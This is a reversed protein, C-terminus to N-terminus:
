DHNLDREKFAAVGREVAAALEHALKRCLEQIKKRQRESSFLFELGMGVPQGQTSVWAVRGKLKVGMLYGPPKLKCEVMSGVPLHRETRIFTGGESIDETFERVFGADTEYAVQISYAIRRARRESFEIKKGEAADLVLQLTHRQASGFEVEVGAPLATDRLARRSAVVRGKLRFMKDRSPLELVITLESGLEFRRGTRVFLVGAPGRWFFDDFLGEPKPYSVHVSIGTTMPLYYHRIRTGQLSLSLILVRSAAPSFMSTCFFDHPSAAEISNNRNGKSVLQSSLGASCKGSCFECSMDLNSGHGTHAVSFQMVLHLLRLIRPM